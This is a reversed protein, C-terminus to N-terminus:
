DNLLFKKKRLILVRSRLPKDIEINNLENLITSLYKNSLDNLHLGIDLFNEKVFSFYNLLDEKMSNPLKNLEYEYVRDLVIQWRRGYGRDERSRFIINKIKAYIGDYNPAASGIIVILGNNKISRCLKQLSGSFSDVIGDTTLFNNMVALNYHKKQTYIYASTYPSILKYIPDSYGYDFADNSVSRGFPVHIKDITKGNIMSLENYLHMFREFKKSREITEFIVRQKDLLPDDISNVVDEFSRSFQAPGPGIEIFRFNRKNNLKVLRKNLIDNLIIQSRNYRILYHWICYADAQYRDQFDLENCKNITHDLCDSFHMKEKDSMDRLYPIVIMKLYEIFTNTEKRFNDKLIEEEIPNPTFFTGLYSKDNKDM